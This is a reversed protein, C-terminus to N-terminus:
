AMPTCIEVLNGDPDQVYSVTQGWPKTAPEVIAIAGASVAKTFLAPVDATVLAVEFGLPTQSDRATLVDRHLTERALELSAFSIRAAGTDLEGYAKGHDDHFFRRTLGFATEYFALSAAVDKVYLIVYGLSVAPANM